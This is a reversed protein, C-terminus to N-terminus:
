ASGGPPEPERRALARLRAQLLKRVLMAVQEADRECLTVEGYNTHLTVGSCMDPVQKALAYRLHLEDDTM